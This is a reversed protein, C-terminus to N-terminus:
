AGSGDAILFALETQWKKPDPEEAPDTLYIENRSEWWEVGNIVTKKWNIRNKEAWDLLAVTANYLGKGRYSGTYMVVAYNGAPIFGMTVRENGPVTTAVLWGVEIDLKRTMDTTLFRIISPGSPKIDRSALWTKVERNLPQIYSGFPIPVHIRIAAYPQEQRYEIRPKTIM